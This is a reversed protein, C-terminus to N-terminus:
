TEQSCRGMWSGRWKPWNTVGASLIDLLRKKDGAKLDTVLSPAKRYNVQKQSECSSDVSIKNNCTRKQSSLRKHKAKPVCYRLLTPLSMM